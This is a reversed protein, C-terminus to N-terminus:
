LKLCAFRTNYDIIEREPKVFVDVVQKLDFDVITLRTLELGHSTYCQFFSSAFKTSENTNVILLFISIALPVKM